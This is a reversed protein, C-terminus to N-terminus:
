QKQEKEEVEISMSQIQAKLAEVIGSLKAAEMKAQEAEKKVEFLEKEIQTAREKDASLIAIQKDSEILKEKLTEIEKTSEIKIKEIEEKAFKKTRDLEKELEERESRLVQNNEMVAKVQEEIAKLSEIQKQMDTNQSKVSELEKERDSLTKKLEEVEESHKAKITKIEEATEAKVKALENQIEEREKVLEEAEVLVKQKASALSALEGDLQRSILTFADKIAKKTATSIGEYKALEEDSLTIGKARQRQWVSFMEALFHAKSEANADQMASEIESKLEEDIKFNYQIAPM